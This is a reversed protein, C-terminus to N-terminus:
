TQVVPPTAVITGYASLFFTVLHETPDLVSGVARVGATYWEALRMVDDVFPDNDFLRNHEFQAGRDEAEAVEESIGGLQLIDSVQKGNPYFVLGMFRRRTAVTMSM